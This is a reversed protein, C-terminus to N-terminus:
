LWTDNANLYVIRGRTLLVLKTPIFAYQSTLKRHWFCCIQKSQETFGTQHTTGCHHKDSSLTTDRSTNASEGKLMASRITLLETYIKTRWHAGSNRQSYTTQGRFRVTQQSLHMPNVTLSVDINIIDPAYHFCVAESYGDISVCTDLTISIVVSNWKRCSIDTVWTMCVFGSAIQIRLTDIARNHNSLVIGVHRM